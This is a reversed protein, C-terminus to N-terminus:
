MKGSISGIYNENEYVDIDALNCSLFGLSFVRTIGRALFNNQNDFLDYYYRPCLLGTRVVKGDDSNNRKYFFEASYSCVPSNKIIKWNNNFDTPDSHVKTFLLIPLLLYIIKM